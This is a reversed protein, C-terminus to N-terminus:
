TFRIKKALAKVKPIHNELNIHYIEREDWCKMMKDIIGNTEYPAAVYEFANRGTNLRIANKHYEERRLLELEFYGGISNM